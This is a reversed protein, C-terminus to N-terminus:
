DLRSGADEDGARRVARDKNQSPTYCLALITDLYECPTKDAQRVARKKPFFGCMKGKRHQAKSKIMLIM